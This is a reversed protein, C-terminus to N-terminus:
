RNIVRLRREDLPLTVPARAIASHYAALGVELAAAGDRGASVSPAGTTLTQYLEALHRQIASAENAIASDPWAPVREEWVVPKIARRGATAHYGYATAARERPQVLTLVGALWFPATLYGRSGRVEIGDVANKATSMNIFASGGSALRLLADGDCDDYTDAFPNITTPNRALAPLQAFVSSVDGGLYRVVDFTHTNHILRGPAFVAITALEGIAGQDILAKIRRFLPSYRIPHHTEVVTGSEACARLMADAEAMSTAFAKEVVVAKVKAAACALVAECKQPTQTCISVVDPQEQEIMALYDTYLAQV